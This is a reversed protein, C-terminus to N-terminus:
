TEKGRGVVEAFERSRKLSFWHLMCHSPGPQGVVVVTWSTWYDADLIGGSVLEVIQEREPEVYANGAFQALPVIELSHLVRNELAPKLMGPDIGGVDIV